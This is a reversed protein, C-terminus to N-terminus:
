PARVAPACCVPAQFSPNAGIVMPLVRTLTIPEFDVAADFTMATHLLPNQAHAGSTGM